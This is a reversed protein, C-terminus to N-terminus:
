ADKSTTSPRAPCSGRQGEVPPCAWRGAWEPLPRRAIDADAPPAPRWALAVAALLALAGSVVLLVALRVLRPVLTPIPLPRRPQRLLAAAHWCEQTKIMMSCTM